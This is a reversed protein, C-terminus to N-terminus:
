ASLAASNQLQASLPPVMLEFWKDWSMKRSNGKPLERVQKKKSWSELTLSFGTDEKSTKCDDSWSHTRAAHWRSKHHSGQGGKGHSEGINSWYMWVPSSYGVRAPCYSWRVKFTVQLVQTVAVCHYKYMFYLAAGRRNWSLLRNWLIHVDWGQPTPRFALTNHACFM